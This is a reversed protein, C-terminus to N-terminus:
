ASKCNFKAVESRARKLFDGAIKGRSRCELGKSAFLGNERQKECYDLFLAIEANESVKISNTEEDFGMDTDFDMDSSFTSQEEFMTLSHSLPLYGAPHYDAEVARQALSLIASSRPKLLCESPDSVDLSVLRARSGLPLPLLRDEPASTLYTVQWSILGYPSKACVPRSPFTKKPYGAEFQMVDTNIVLSCHLQLDPDTCSPLTRVLVQLSRVLGQTNRLVSNLCVDFDDCTDTIRINWAELLVERCGPTRKSVQVTLAASGPFGKSPLQSSLLAPRSTPIHTRLAAICDVLQSTVESVTRIWQTKTLHSIAM